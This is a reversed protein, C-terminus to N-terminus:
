TLKFLLSMKKVMEKIIVKTYYGLLFSGMELSNSILAQIPTSATKIGILETILEGNIGEYATILLFALISIVIVRKDIRKKDKPNFFVRIFLGIGLMSPIILLWNVTIMGRLAGYVVLPTLVVILLKTIM